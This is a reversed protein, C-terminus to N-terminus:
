SVEEQRKEGWTRWERELDAQEIKGVHKLASFSLGVTAQHDWFVPSMVPFVLSEEYYLLIDLSPLSLTRLLM